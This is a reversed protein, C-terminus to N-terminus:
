SLIDGSDGLDFHCHGKSRWIHYPLLLGLYTSVSLIIGRLLFMLGYAPDGRASTLFPAGLGFVLGGAPACVSFFAIFSALTLPMDIAFAM